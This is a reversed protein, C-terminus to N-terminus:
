QCAGDVCTQSSEACDTWPIWGYGSCMVVEDGQCGFSMAECPPDSICDAQTCEGAVMNGCACTETGCNRVLQWTSGDSKCEEVANNMCRLRRPTCVQVGMCQIPSQNEDCVQTGTCYQVLVWATGDDNCELVANQGGDCKRMGAGCIEPEGCWADPLAERCMKQQDPCPDEVMWETGYDNCKEVNNYMCQKAGPNCVKATDADGDGSLCAGNACGNECETVFTWDLRGHLIQCLQLEDNRCRNQGMTCIEVPQNEDGDVSVDGDTNEDGDNSIERCVGVSAGSQISCTEGNLCDSDTACQTSVCSGNLCRFGIRCDNDDSCPDLAADGDEDASEENCASFSFAALWVLMCSLALSTIKM